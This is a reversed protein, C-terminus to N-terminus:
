LGKKDRFWIVSAMRASTKNLRYSPLRADSFTCIGSQKISEIHVGCKILKATTLGPLDALWKQESKDLGLAVPIFYKKADPMFPNSVFQDFVDQGVEFHQQSICPGIYAQLHSMDSSFTRLTNEVIGQALGRWGAHIAAVRPEQLDVLLIPVCDATLVACAHGAITTVSADAIIPSSNFETLSQEDLNVVDTTHQQNLWVLSEISLRSQLRGIRLRIDDETGHDVVFQCVVHDDGDNRGPKLSFQLFALRLALWAVFRGM